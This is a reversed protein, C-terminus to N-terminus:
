GRCLLNVRVLQGGHYLPGITQINSEDGNFVVRDDRTPIGFAGLATPSLIIRIDVSDGELDQPASTRVVAPCTISDVVSVAGTAPDSATRLLTVSLGYTRTAADLAAIEQGPTM